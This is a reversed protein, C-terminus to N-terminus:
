NEPTMEALSLVVRFGLFDDWYDPLYGNRSSCRALEPRSFWSGGRVAPRDSQEWEEHTALVRDRAIREFGDPGTAYLNDQWEWVNGAMDYLGIANPALAGVSCARGVGSQEINALKAAADEVGQGDHDWPWQGTHAAALTKARAAREWQLETPLMVHYSHLGAMGQLQGRLEGDLWRTYARAEFWNIGWVPRSGHPRQADWDWPALRLKGSRRALWDKYAKDTVASDFEGNRWALGQADWLEAGATYGGAEVFCAYQDVTTLTRAIYFPQDIHVTRPPNDSEDAQGMTFEGAPIRVFGPLPEDQEIHGTFRDKLLWPTAPEFRDDQRLVGRVDAYLACLEPDQAQEGPQVPLTVCGDVLTWFEQTATDDLLPGLVLLGRLLQRQRKGKEDDGQVSGGPEGLWREVLKKLESASNAAIVQDVDLGARRGVERQESEEVSILAAYVSRIDALPIARLTPRFGRAPKSSLDNEATAASGTINSRLPPLTVDISASIAALSLLPLAASESGQPELALLSFYNQIPTDGSFPALVQSANLAAFLKLPDFVHRQAARHELMHEVIPLRIRQATFREADGLRAIRAVAEAFTVPPLAKPVDSSEAKATAYGRSVDDLSGYCAWSLLDMDSFSASIEGKHFSDRLVDFGTGTRKLCRYLEPQFLQLLVLALVLRADVPGGLVAGLPRRREEAVRVVQHFLEVVRVLKRPVYADFANVVLHGLHLNLPASAGMTSDGDGDVPVESKSRLTIDGGLRGAGHRQAPMPSGFWAQPSGQDRKRELLLEAEKMQMFRLADDRTLAPLRFPLHVIKELYEFGTIPMEPKKNGLAYERYRHGIGREIVEDDLALVFAFSEVNFVTKILELVAVAKEPLCRDLDDVLVVFNIAIPTNIVVGQLYGDHQAPRTVAKLVRHVDYFYRGDDRYKLDAAVEIKPKGFWNSKSVVAKAVGLTTAAVPDVAAVTGQVLKEVLEVLKPLVSVIADGPKQMAQWAGEGPTQADKLGLKLASLVHLLMPVHLHEEHEYKWPQFVVPITLGFSGGDLERWEARRKQHGRVHDHVKNLLYSKGAGWEGFIGIVLPDDGLPQRGARDRNLAEAIRQWLTRAYADYGLPDDSALAKQPDPGTTM